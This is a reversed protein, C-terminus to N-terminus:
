HKAADAVGPMNEFQEKLLNYLNRAADGRLTVRVKDERHHEIDGDEFTSSSTGNGLDTLTEANVGVVDEFFVLAVSASATDISSIVGTAYVSTFGHARRHVIKKKESM